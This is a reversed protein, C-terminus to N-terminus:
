ADVTPSPGDLPDDGAVEVVQRDLAPQGALVM